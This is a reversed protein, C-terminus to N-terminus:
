PEMTPRGLLLADFDDPEDPEPLRERDLPSLGLRRGAAALRREARDLATLLGGAIADKLPVGQVEADIQRVLVRSRCWSEVVGADAETIYGRSGVAERLRAWEEAVEDTMDPPCVPFAGAMQLPRAQEREPHLTGALAKEALSKAM